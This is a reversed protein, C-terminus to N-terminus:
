FLPALFELIGCKLQHFVGTNWKEIKTCHEFIDCFDNKIDAICDTGYMWMGCEFHLYFSRYDLNITGVTAYKDDCLFTKAHIFGPDYEYIKVGDEILRPYFAETTSKIIKKDPIGPTVIRVDVGSKAALCLAEKMQEDIILYPTTIWIYDRASGIMNLYVSEGVPERDLPNDTYPQIVGSGSIADLDADAPRFSSYDGRENEPVKDLYEWMSLFMVAFSWAAKGRLMVANDKWYGFREISNIYEDAINVGGTFATVGDIVCIKRHDRNNQVGSLIPLFRHFVYCKIGEENLKKPFKMENAMISGMDDYIVRVDVGEAVKETLIAHIKDWMEGKGIIFYEIFIYKKAKRLEDLFPGFMEEGSRFYEVACGDFPPCSSGNLIYRSQKAADPDAAALSSIVNEQRGANQEMGSNISLMKKVTRKSLRNGGFIMYIAVGFAPFIFILISWALKYAMNQDTNLIKIFFIFALIFAAATYFVFYRSFQIAAVLILAFQILILLWVIFVRSFILKKLNKIM